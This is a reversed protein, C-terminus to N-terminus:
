SEGHHVESPMAIDGIVAEIIEALFEYEDSARALHTFCCQGVMQEIGACRVM